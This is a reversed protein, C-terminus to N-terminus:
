QAEKAHTQYYNEPHQGIAPWKGFELGDPTFGFLWCLCIFLALMFIVAAVDKMISKMEQRKM